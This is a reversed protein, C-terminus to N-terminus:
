VRTLWIWAAAVVFLVVSACGGGAPVGSYRAANVRERVCPMCLGGGGPSPDNEGCRPCKGSRVKTAHAKAASQVLDELHKELGWEVWAIFQQRSSTSLAAFVATM